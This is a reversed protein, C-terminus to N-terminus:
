DDKRTKCFTSDEIITEVNIIGEKILIDVNNELIKMLFILTLSEIRRIYNILELSEQFFGLSHGMVQLIENDIIVSENIILKLYLISSLM